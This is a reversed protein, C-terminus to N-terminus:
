KKNKIKKGEEPLAITWYKWYPKDGWSYFKLNIRGDFYIEMLHDDLATRLISKRPEPLNPDYPNIGQSLMVMRGIGDGAIEIREYALAFGKEYDKLHFHFVEKKNILIYLGSKNKKFNFNKNELIENVIRKRSMGCDRIYISKLPYNDLCLKLNKFDLRKPMFYQEM